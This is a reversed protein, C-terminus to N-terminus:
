YQLPDLGVPIHNLNPERQQKEVHKIDLLAKFCNDHEVPAVTLM